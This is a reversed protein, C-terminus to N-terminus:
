FKLYYKGSLEFPKRNFKRSCLTPLDKAVFTTQNLNYFFSPDILYKLSEDDPILQKWGQYPEDYGSPSNIKERCYHSKFIWNNTIYPFKNYEQHSFSKIKNKYEEINKFCYSCHTILPKNPNTKYKIIYSINKQLRYYTLTKMDKNYRVVYGKNWDQVKHYFYPFYMNGKIFSFNSPPNKIIYEIGERTLIEDIDVVILLDKDSPHYKKEIFIKAYDRQSYEFCWIPSNYPYAKRNCINHFTVIDIKDMYPKISLEFPKFTFWKSLGSYTSNSIIFIFKDVYNYLRWIHIYAM